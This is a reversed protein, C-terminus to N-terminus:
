PGAGLWAILWARVQDPHAIAYLSSAVVSAGALWEKIPAIAKALDRTAKALDIVARTLGPKAPSTASSEPSSKIAALAAKIERTEADRRYGDAEIRDMRQHGHSLRDLIQHHGDTLYHMAAHVEGLAWYLWAQMDGPPGSHHGGPTIM